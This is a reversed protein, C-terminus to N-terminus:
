ILELENPIVIDVVNSQTISFNITDNLLSNNALNQVKLHARFPIPDEILSELTVKSQM